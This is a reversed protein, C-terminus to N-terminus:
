LDSYKRTSRETYIKRHEDTKLWYDRKNEDSCRKYNLDFNKEFKYTIQKIFEEETAFHAPDIIEGIAYEVTCPKSNDVELKFENM